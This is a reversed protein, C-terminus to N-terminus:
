FMTLGLPLYMPIRRSTIHDLLEVVDMRWCWAEVNWSLGLARLKEKVGYSTHVQV